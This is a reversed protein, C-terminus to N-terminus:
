LGAVQRNLLRPRGHKAGDIAVVLAVRAFVPVFNGSDIECAVGRLAVFVAVDPYEAPDVVDDFDGAMAEAGHFDFAGEYAVRGHGLRGHDRAGVLDFALGDDAKHSQTRAM